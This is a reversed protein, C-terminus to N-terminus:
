GVRFTVGGEVTMARNHGTWGLEGDYISRLGRTYLFELSLGMTGTLSLLVGAGGSVAFDVPKTPTRLEEGACTGTQTVPQLVLVITVDCGTEWAIAPGALLYLSSRSGGLPVSAKGLAALQVYDLSLTVDGIQILSFTAGKQLYSGELRLALPGTVPLTLAASAVFGRRGEQSNVGVGSVVLDSLSAGAKVGLDVQGAAPIAALGALLAAFAFPRLRNM